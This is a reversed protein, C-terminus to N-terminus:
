LERQARGIRSRVRQEVLSEYRAVLGWYMRSQEEEETSIRTALEATITSRREETTAVEWEPRESEFGGYDGRGKYYNTSDFWWPRGYVLMALFRPSPSLNASGRHVTRYDAIVVSGANLEFSRIDCNENMFCEEESWRSGWMHSALTFETPGQLNGVRELAVFANIGYPPTHLGGFRRHADETFCLRTRDYGGGNISSSSPAPSRPDAARQEDDIFLQQTDRHWHQAELGDDRTLAVVAHISKLKLEDGLLARLVSVVADNTAFPPSGYAEDEFPLQLDIRGANRERYRKGAQWLVEDRLPSKEWLARLSRRHLAADALADVVRARSALLPAIDREVRSRVRRISDIPVAGHLAVVGCRRFAAAARLALAVPLVGTSPVTIELDPDSADCPDRSWRWSGDLASCCGVLLAVFALRRMTTPCPVRDALASLM